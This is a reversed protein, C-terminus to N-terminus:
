IFLNFRLLLLLIVIGIGIYWIYLKFVVKKGLIDMLVEIFRCFFDFRNIYKCFFCCNLGLIVNIVGM